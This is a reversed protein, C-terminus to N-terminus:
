TGRQGLTGARGYHNLRTRREFDPRARLVARLELVTQGAVAAYVCAILTPEDIADGMEEFWTWRCTAALFDATAVDVVPLVTIVIPAVRLPVHVCAVAILLAGASVGAWRV